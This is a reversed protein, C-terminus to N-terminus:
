GNLRAAHWRLHDEMYTSIFYYSHDYGPQRRLILPIGTQQCAAQLLEPRLQETLFWRTSGANAVSCSVGHGVVIGTRM